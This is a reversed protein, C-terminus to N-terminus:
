RGMTGMHSLWTGDGLQSEYGWPEIISEQVGDKHLLDLFSFFLFTFLLKATKGLWPM